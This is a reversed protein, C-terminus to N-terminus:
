NNVENHLRREKDVYLLLLELLLKEEVRFGAFRLDSLDFNYNNNMTKWFHNVIRKMINKATRTYARMHIRYIDKVVISTAHMTSQFSIDSKYDSELTKIIEPYEAAFLKVEKTSTRM